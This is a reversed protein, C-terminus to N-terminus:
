HKGRAAAETAAQMVSAYDELAKRGKATLRCITLPYKGKFTKEVTVYKAQELKALHSSLNGQTLGCENQLYLFDAEAVAYLVTVIMLRAPEHIVRDLSALDQLASM